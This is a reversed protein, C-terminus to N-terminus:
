KEPKSFTKKIYINYFLSSKLTEDKRKSLKLKKVSKSYKLINKYKLIYKFSHIIFM